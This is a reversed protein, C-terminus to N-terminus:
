VVVVIGIWRWLCLDFYGVVVLDFGLVFLSGLTRSWLFLGCWILGVWVWILNDGSGSSGMAFRCGFGGAMGSCVM